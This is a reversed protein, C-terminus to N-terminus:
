DLGGDDLLNEIAEDLATALDDFELGEKVTELLEVVENVKKRKLLKILIDLNDDPKRYAEKLVKRVEERILKKFEIAKM